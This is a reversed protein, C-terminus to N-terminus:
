CIRLVLYCKKYKEERIKCFLFTHRACEQLLFIKLPVAKRRHFLFLRCNRRLHLLWWSIRLPKPRARPSSWEGKEYFKNYAVKRQKALVKLPAAPFFTQFGRSPTWRKQLYRLMQMKRCFLSCFERQFYHFTLDIKCCLTTIRIVAFSNGFDKALCCLDMLFQLFISFLM